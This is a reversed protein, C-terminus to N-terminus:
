GIWDGKSIKVTHLINRDDKVGNLVENRVRDTWSIEMRTVDITLGWKNAEQESKKVPTYIKIITHVNQQHIHYVVIKRKLEPPLM